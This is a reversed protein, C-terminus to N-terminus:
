SSLLCLDPPHHNLALGLCISQSVRDQVFGMVFFSSASHNLTYARPEFGLVAFLYLVCDLLRQYSM